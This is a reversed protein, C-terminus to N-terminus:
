ARKAHALENQESIDSASPPSCNNQNCANILSAANHKKLFANFMDDTSNSLGLALQQDNSSNGNNKNKFDM